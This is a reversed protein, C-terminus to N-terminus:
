ITDINTKIRSCLTGCILFRKPGRSGACCKFSRGIRPFSNSSPLPDMSVAYMTVGFAKARVSPTYSRKNSQVTYVLKPSLMGYRNFFSCISLSHNSSSPKPNKSFLFTGPKRQTTVPPTPRNFLSDLPIVGSIGNSGYGNLGRTRSVFM